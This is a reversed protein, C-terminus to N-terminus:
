GVAVWVYTTGSANMSNAYSAAHGVYFNTADMATVPGTGGVTGSSARMIQTSGEVLFAMLANTTTNLIFVFKSANTLGHPIARNATNDGNYTDANITANGTTTKGTLTAAVQALPVLASGDLEVNGTAVNKKSHYDNDHPVITSPSYYGVGM